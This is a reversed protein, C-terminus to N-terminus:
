LDMCFFNFKVVLYSMLSRGGAILDGGGMIIDGGGMILIPKTYNLKRMERGQMSLKEFTDIAM